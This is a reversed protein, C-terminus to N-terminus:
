SLMNKVTSSFEEATTRKGLGGLTERCVDLMENLEQNNKCRELRLALSEGDPGMLQYMFEAMYRRADTNLIHASRDDITKLPTAKGAKREIYGKQELDNILVQVDGMVKLRQVYDAENLLGNIMVLLSRQKLSISATRGALEAEGKATKILIDNAAM